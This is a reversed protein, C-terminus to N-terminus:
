DELEHPYGNIEIFPIAEKEFLERYRFGAYEQIKKSMIIAIKM